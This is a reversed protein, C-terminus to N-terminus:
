LNVWTIVFITRGNQLVGINLSSNIKNQREPTFRSFAWGILGPCFHVRCPGSVSGLSFTPFISLTLDFTYVSSSNTLDWFKIIVRGVQVSDTRSRRQPDKFDICWLSRGHIRVSTGTYFILFSKFSDYFRAEVNYRYFYELRLKFSTQSTVLSRFLSIVEM